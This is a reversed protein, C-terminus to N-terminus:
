VLKVITVSVIEFEFECEFKNFRFEDFRNDPPPPIPVFPIAVFLEVFVPVKLVGRSLM